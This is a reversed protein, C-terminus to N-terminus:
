PPFVRLACWSDLLIYRYPINQAVAYDKVDYLTQEYNKGPQTNYYYYAGNDTSYGLQQMAPDRKYAYRQKNYTSLLIDGWQEMAQNVGRSLAVITSLSYNAPISRVAGMVGYSLTANGSTQSAAMFNSASSLVLSTSLDESFLVVPGSGQIGGGVGGHGGGGGGGGGGTTSFDFCSCKLATCQSECEEMTTTKNRYAWKSCTGPHKPAGCDCFDDAHPNFTKYDPSPVYATYGADSAHLAGNGVTVRCQGTARPEPKANGAAARPGQPNAAPAGGWSGTHTGSGDMDGQFSVVGRKASGSAAAFSPFSSVLGNRGPSADQGASAQAVGEPFSQAFLAHEAYVRVSTSLPTGDGAAWAMTAGVYAGAADTGSVPTNSKLTLSGDVSGANRM